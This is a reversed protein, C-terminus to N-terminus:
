MDTFLVFRASKILITELYIIVSFKKYFVDTIGKARKNEFTFTCTLNQQHKILFWEM